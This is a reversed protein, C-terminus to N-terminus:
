VSRCYTSNQTKDKEAIIELDLQVDVNDTYGDNDLETPDDLIIVRPQRDEPKRGFPCCKCKNCDPCVILGHKGPVM